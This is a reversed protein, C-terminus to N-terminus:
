IENDAEGKNEPFSYDGLGELEIKAIKVKGKKIKIKKTKAKKLAKDFYKGLMKELKKRSEEEEKLREAKEEENELRWIKNYEDLWAVFEDDCLIGIRGTNDIYRFFYDSKINDHYFGYVENDLIDMVLNYSLELKRLYKEIKWLKEISCEHRVALWGIVAYIDKDQM